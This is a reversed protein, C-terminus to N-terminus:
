TWEQQRGWLSRTHMCFTYPFGSWVNLGIYFAQCNASSLNLQMKKFSFVHIKILIESFNPGLFAILLIAANTRNMAQCRGPSLGDDSGEACIVDCKKELPNGRRFLPPPRSVSASSKPESPIGSCIMRPSATLSLPAKSKNTDSRWCRCALLHGPEM